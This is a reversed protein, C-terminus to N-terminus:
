RRPATRAFCLVVGLILSLVAALGAARLTGMLLGDFMLRRWVRPDGFIDWREPSWLGTLVAGNVTVRPQGLAWLLWVAAGVSRVTTM